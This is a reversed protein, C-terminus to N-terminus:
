NWIVPYHWLRWSWTLGWTPLAAQELLGYLHRGTAIRRAPRVAYTAATSGWRCGAAPTLHVRRALASRTLWEDLQALRVMASFFRGASASIQSRSLATGSANTMGGVTALPRIRTRRAHRDARTYITNNASLTRQGSPIASIDIKVSGATAGVPSRGVARLPRSNRTSQIKSSPM